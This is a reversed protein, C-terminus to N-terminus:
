LSHIYHINRKHRKLNCALKTKFDCGDQDCRQWRVDIDHVCERHRKVDGAQKAKYGCGDQDCRHWRVDIDHVDAKHQKVSGALKAKYTCGDQDCHHWRVDIDHVMQKHKKLSGASKAKYRCGDLGCRHWRVGIDHINQKHKKLHSAQKAKYDCGIQDCRYWVVDIGHKAAQHQKLHSIKGRYQCGSIGCLRIINGWKDRGALGCKRIVRGEKDRLLGGAAGKGGVSGNDLDPCLFEWSSETDLPNLWEKDGDDYTVHVRGNNLDFTDIIGDYAERPNWHVRIRRGVDDREFGPRPYKEKPPTVIPRSLKKKPLTPSSVIRMEEDNFEIRPTDNVADPDFELRCRSGEPPAFSSSMSTAAPEPPSSSPPRSSLSSPIILKQQETQSAPNPLATYLPATYIRRPCCAHVPNRTHGTLNKVLNSENEQSESKGWCDEECHRKTPTDPLQRRLLELINGAYGM